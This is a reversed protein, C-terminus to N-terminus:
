GGDRPDVWGDRRLAAQHAERGWVGAFWDDQAEGAGPGTAAAIQGKLAGVVAPARQGWEALVEDFSRGSAWEAYGAVVMEEAGVRRGSLLWSTARARGVHRVLRPVGGWGCAVGMHVQRFALWGEPEVLRQDAMTLLEAGGGVAPGKLWAVIPPALDHAADTIVRMAQAMRRGQEPTLWGEALGNLDGGACFVGGESRLGVVSVRPDDCVDLVARGLDVMMPVSMAHSALPNDLVWQVVRENTRLVRVAGRGEGVDACSLTAMAARVENLRDSRSSLDM